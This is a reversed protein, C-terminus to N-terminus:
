IKTKVLNSLFKFIYGLFPLKIYFESISDWYDYHYKVKGQKNTIIESLGLIKQHKGFAIFTMKWKVFTLNQKSVISQIHFKPEQTKLLTNKFLKKFEENGKINNFPDIFIINKDILRDFMDLNSIKLNEFLHLYESLYKNTM